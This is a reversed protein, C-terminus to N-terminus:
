RRAHRPMQRRRNPIRGHPRESTSYTHATPDLISCPPLSVDPRKPIPM